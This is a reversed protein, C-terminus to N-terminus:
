SFQICDIITFSFHESYRVFYADFAVDLTAKSPMTARLWEGLDDKSVAKFLYQKYTNPHMSFRLQKCESSMGTMSVSTTRM